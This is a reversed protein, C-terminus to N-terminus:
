RASPTVAATSRLLATMEAATHRGNFIPTNPQFAIGSRLPGAQVADYGFRDLVESVADMAEDDDSAVALARREPSGPPMAHAELDHYGIHNLSKALRAQPLFSQIFESSTLGTDEIEQLTGDVPEWYNMADIVIKGALANTPLTSYKHLPVALIVLDALEALDRSTMATAGPMTFRVILGIEEPSGSGAVLVTYGANMAQRAVATGVRGVGLVGITRIPSANTHATDTIGARTM